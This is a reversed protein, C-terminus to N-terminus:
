GENKPPVGVPAEDRWPEHSETASQPEQELKELRRAFDQTVMLDAQAELIRSLIEGEQPTIEGESIPGLIATMGLAIEDANRAPPLNFHVLRDKRPPLLRDMCLRLGLIDGALALEIAKRTLQEAEGELLEELLLTIKNPSGPPRGSPNGSTGEAFQGNSKKKRETSM